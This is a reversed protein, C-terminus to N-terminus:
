RAAELNLSKLLALNHRIERHLARTDADRSRELTRLRHTSLAYSRLTALSAGDWGSYAALLDAALRRADAPLGALTRRRDVESLPAPPPPDTRGAHRAPRFTGRAVHEVVPVRNAGGSRGAVGAM